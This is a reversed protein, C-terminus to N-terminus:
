SQLRFAAVEGLFKQDEKIGNHEAGHIGINITLRSSLAEQAAAIHADRRSVTFITCTNCHNGQVQFNELLRWIDKHLESVKQYARALM